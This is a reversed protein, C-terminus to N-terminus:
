PPDTLIQSFIKQVDRMFTYSYARFIAMLEFIDEKVDGKLISVSLSFGSETHNTNKDPKLVVRHPLYYYPNAPHQSPPDAVNRMYGIGMNYWTGKPHISDLILYEQVFQQYM